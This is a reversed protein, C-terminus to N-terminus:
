PGATKDRPILGPLAEADLSTRPGVWGGTWHICTDREGPIFRGPRSALWEGGDLVSILYQPVIGGSGWVGEHCCLNFMVKHRPGRSPCQPVSYRVPRGAGRRDLTFRAQSHVSEPQQNPSVCLLARLTWLRQLTSSASEAEKSAPEFDELPM